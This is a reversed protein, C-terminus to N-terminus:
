RRKKFQSMPVYTGFQVGDVEYALGKLEVEDKRAM